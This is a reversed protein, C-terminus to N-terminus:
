ILNSMPRTMRRVGGSVAVAILIIVLIPALVFPHFEGRGVIAGVLGGALLAVVLATLVFCGIWRIFPPPGYGRGLRQPPFPEGEPWWPPRRRPTDGTDVWGRYRGRGGGARM